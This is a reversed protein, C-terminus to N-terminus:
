AKESFFLKSMRLFVKLLLPRRSMMEEKSLTKPTVVSVPSESYLGISKIQLEFYGPRFNDIEKMSKSNVFKSMSLGIQFLGATANM